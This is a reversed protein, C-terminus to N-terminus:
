KDRVNEFFDRLLLSCEEELIGGYVEPIHNCYQFIRPGNEIGGGKLNYAGFYLRRIKAFSIAQACMPCPELTVYMDFDCLRSTSFLRCTKKIALMEAHATSDSLTNHESITINNDNNVITAGIPIQGSNKAIMAQKIAMKMYQYEFM